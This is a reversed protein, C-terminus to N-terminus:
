AMDIGLNARVHSGWNPQTGDIDKFGYERALNWTALAKGSKAMIDPDNALAVVARGIYSPTESVAFNEDKAIADRWNDETVGFHDLVAESRLFGPSLAVAAVSFPRLDEAQALALRIVSAKALDYFLSGRYRETIGDTVEIILGRGREVMLPAAYWSTILHTHVALRQIELGNQLDHRWFPTGWQTLPDGGWIDNVLLDLQGNQEERIHQILGAVEEPVTHDVRIAIARGGQSNILEATDEITEPRGMSSSSKRTSRGTVYVMAGAAGLEVAIGRGAGRTAGAVLAVKDKLRPVCFNPANFNPNSFADSKM